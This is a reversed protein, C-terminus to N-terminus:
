SNSFSVGSLQYYLNLLLKQIQLSLIKKNIIAAEKSNQMIELDEYTANGAKISDKINKILNDYIKINQSYIKIKYKLTKIQNIISNFNNILERKKDNYLVASKLYSIKSQEIAPKSNISLPLTVSFGFNYFHQKNIGTFDKTKQYNYSANFSVTVLQNGIQMKYLYKNIKENLKQSFLSLNSKLYKKKSILKLHPLVVKSINMDSINKFSNIIQEQSLKVDALSLKLSNLNLIANDLTSSDTTGSLFGEKKRKVDIKANKIQLKLIKENLENIKYDFALDYAQKILARKQLEIQLLSYNKQVKAYKISYYIAGTKFIPQNISISYLYQTSINASGNNYSKNYQYQLIIPNIWSNKTQIANQITKQLDYKFEKNKLPSLVSAFLLGPLIFSLFKKL